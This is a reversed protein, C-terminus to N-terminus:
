AKATEKAWADKLSITRAFVPRDATSDKPDPWFYGLREFQYRTDPVTRALAPELKAQVVVCSRPNLVTRFDRGDKEPLEETFLRDYLRVEADIAHSASVWHITGKVKKGSDPGGSRTDLLATGRLEVVEGSADKVVEDCRIICAYKLRVEGGPRLRFYKPLAVEMFDDRDIYVERTFPVKRTGASPDGPNEVAEVEIVEGAPINTLVVKLPSLM